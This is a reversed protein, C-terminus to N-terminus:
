KMSSAARIQSHLPSNLTRWRMPSLVKSRTMDGWTKMAASRRAASHARLVFEPARVNKRELSGFLFSDARSV